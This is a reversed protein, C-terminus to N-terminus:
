QDELHAPLRVEFQYLGSTNSITLVNGELTLGQPSPVPRGAFSAGAVIPTMVGAEPQIVWALAETGPLAPAVLVPYDRWSTLRLVFSMGMLRGGFSEALEARAAAIEERTEDPWRLVFALAGDPGYTKLLSSASNYYHVRGAADATLHPDSLNPFEGPALPRHPGFGGKTSPHYNTLGPRG